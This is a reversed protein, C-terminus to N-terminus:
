AWGTQIRTIAKEFVAPQISTDGMFPTDTIFVLAALLAITFGQAAIGITHHSAPEIMTSLAVATAILVLALYWFTSPLRLAAAAIRQNRLDVLADLSKLIEGYITTQRGGAPDLSYIAQVLARMDETTKLSEQGTRLAPWEDAIVSKAYALLRERLMPLQSDGYRALQRGLQVLQAAEREVLEEAKRLNGHVQVLSFALVLAASSIITAQARIVADVRDKDPATWGLAKGILPSLVFCAIATGSFLVVIWFDGVHYLRDLM